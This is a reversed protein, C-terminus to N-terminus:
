PAALDGRAYADALESSEGCWGGPEVGALRRWNGEAPIYRCTVSIIQEGDPQFYSFILGTDPVDLRDVIPFFDSEMYAELPALNSAVLAARIEADVPEGYQYVVEVAWDDMRRAGVLDLEASTSKGSPDTQSSIETAIRHLTRELDNTPGADGFAAIQLTGSSSAPESDTDPASCAALSLGGLLLLGGTAMVAAVSRPLWSPIASTM